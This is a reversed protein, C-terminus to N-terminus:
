CIDLRFKTSTVKHISIAWALMLPIQTRKARVDDGNKIDWSEPAVHLTQTGGDGGDGDDSGMATVFKVVPLVPYIRVADPGDNMVFGVVTGRAGNVLGRSTAVNKLLMVQAGVKLTLVEPAKTGNRLHTLYPEKGSDISKFTYEQIPNAPDNNVKLKALEANNYADVDRNISFLKTAKVKTEAKEQGDKSRAQEQEKYQQQLAEMVKRNLIQATTHSVVGQRLEQLLNLFTSDDKQRFVKDLLIMTGFMKHLDNDDYYNRDIMIDASGFISKWASGEFAFHTNRGLGVPPLQFFDGCLVLQIGGFPKSGGRIYRGIADLKDFLEASLMSIEDIVLIEATRWNQCATRNRQVQELLSCFFLYSCHIPLCFFLYSVAIFYLNLVDISTFNVFRFLRRVM